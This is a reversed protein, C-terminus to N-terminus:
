GRFLLDLVQQIITNMSSTCLFAILSNCDEDEMSSLMNDVLVDLM